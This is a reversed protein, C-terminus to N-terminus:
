IAKKEYVVKGKNVFNEVFPDEMKLRQKIEAPTYVLFDIPFRHSLYNDAEKLRQWPDKPTKKIIVLDIDSSDTVKGQSLSGYLIIKEPKYGISLEKVAEKLALNAKKYNKNKRQVM